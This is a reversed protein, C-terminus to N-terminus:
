YGGFLTWAISCGCLSGLLSLFIGIVWEWKPSANRKRYITVAGGGAVLMFPTYLCFTIIFDLVLEGSFPSFGQVLLVGARLLHFLGFITISTLFPWFFISHRYKNDPKSEITEIVQDDGRSNIDVGKLLENSQPQTYNSHYNEYNLNNSYDSNKLKASTKITRRTSTSRLPKNKNVVKKPTTKKDAGKSRKSNRSSSKDM